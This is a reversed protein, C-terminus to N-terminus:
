NGGFMMQKLEMMRNYQEKSLPVKLSHKSLAILEAIMLAEEFENAFARCKEENFNM